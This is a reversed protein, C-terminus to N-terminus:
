LLDDILDDAEERIREEAEDAEEDLREELAEQEERAEEELRDAEERAEDELAEAEDRAREEIEDREAEIAAEIEERAAGLEELREEGIAAALDLEVRPDLLPGTVTMPVSAGALRALLPADARGIDEDLTATVRYDVQEALIDAQGEGTAELLPAVLRLDDNRATGGALDLSATLETFGTGDQSAEPPEERRLQAAAKRIEHPLNVGLILGDEVRLEGDGDLDEILAEVHPGGGEGAFRFMGEGHLWDRGTLDDLLPAFSVGELDVGLDFAPAEGRADLLAHGDLRGEYLEARLAEAGLEGGDGTLEAELVELRLDMIRLEGIGVRGDLALERLPELPLDLKIESLDGLGPEGSAGNGDPNGGGETAGDQAGEAQAEDPPLYRDADIADVQLDTEIAPGAQPRITATGDLRSDDLELSLDPAEIREADARITGTGAVHRLADPDETQPPEQDLAALAAKPDLPSLSWDAAVHPAGEPLTVTADAELAVRETGDLYAEVDVAIPEGLRITGTQVAIGEAHFAQDAERDQWHFAGDRVLVGELTMDELLGRAPTEAPNADEAGPTGEAAGADTGSGPEAGDDGDGLREALDAWSAEGAEDRMLRVVPREIELRRAHLEGQLLPWARVGVEVRDVEAFPAEHFGEADAVTVRGIEIGLWPFLSWGIEGELAVERGLEREAAAAIEERYDNPDIVAVAVGIAAIAIVVLAVVSLALWKILRLM